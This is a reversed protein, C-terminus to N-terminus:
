GQRVFTGGDKCGKRGGSRRRSRLVDVRSCLKHFAEMRRVSRRLAKANSPNMRRRKKTAHALLLTALEEITIALGAAVAAQGIFPIAKKAVTVISDLSPIRTMFKNIAIKQLIAKVVERAVLMGGGILGTAATGAIMPSISQIARSASAAVPIAVPQPSPALEQALLPLGVETILQNSFGGLDFSSFVDGFFDGFGNAMTAETSFTDVLSSGATLVAPAVKFALEVSGSPAVFLDEAVFEAAQEAGSKPLIGPITLLPFVAPLVDIVPEFTELLDGLIGGSRCGKLGPLASCIKATQEALPVLDPTQAVIETISRGM